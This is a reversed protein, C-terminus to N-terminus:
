HTDLKIILLYIKAAKQKWEERIAEKKELAKKDFYSKNISRNRVAQTVCWSHYRRLADMILQEDENM